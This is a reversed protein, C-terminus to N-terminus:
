ASKLESSEGVQDKKSSYEKLEVMAKFRRKTNSRKMPLKAVVEDM